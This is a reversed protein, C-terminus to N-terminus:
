RYARVNQSRAVIRCSRLLSLMYGPTLNARRLSDVAAGPIGSDSSIKGAAIQRRLRWIAAPSRTKGSRKGPTVGAESDSTPEGWALHRWREATRIKRISSVIGLGSM